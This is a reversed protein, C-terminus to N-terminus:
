AAGGELGWAAWEFVKMEEAHDEPEFPWEVVTAKTSEIPMYIASKGPNKAYWEDMAANHKDAMHKAAAESPAPHYDDPGPIHISWLTSM